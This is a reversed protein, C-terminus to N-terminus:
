IKTAALLTGRKGRNDVMDINNPNKDLLRSRGIADEISFANTKPLGLAV